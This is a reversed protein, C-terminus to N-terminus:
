QILEYSYSRNDPCSSNVFGNIAIDLRKEEPMSRWYKENFKNKFEPPVKILSDKVFENSLHITKTAETFIPRREVILNNIEKGNDGIKMAHSYSGRIAQAGALKVSLTVETNKIM